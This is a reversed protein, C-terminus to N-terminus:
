KTSEGRGEEVEALSCLLPLAPSVVQCSAISLGRSSLLLSVASYLFVLWGVVSVMAYKHGSAFPIDKIECFTLFVFPQRM